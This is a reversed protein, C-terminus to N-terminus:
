GMVFIVIAVIITSRMFEDKDLELSTNVIHVRYLTLVITAAIIAAFLLPLNLIFLATDRCAKLSHIQQLVLFSGPSVDM